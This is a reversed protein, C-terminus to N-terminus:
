KDAQLSVMQSQFHITFWKGPDAEKGRISARNVTWGWPAGGKHSRREQPMKAEQNSVPAPTEASAAPATPLLCCRGKGAGGGLVAAQTVPLGM